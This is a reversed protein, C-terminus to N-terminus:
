KKCKFSALLPNYKEINETNHAIALTILYAKNDCIEATQLYKLKPTKQDYRAEFITLKSINWSEFTFDSNAIESFDYFDNWLNLIASTLYDSASIDLNLNESLIILNNYFGSKDTKSTVAFEVEWNNPKPLSNEPNELIQWNEPTKISFNEGSEYIKLWNNTSTTKTTEWKSDSCSFLFLALILFAIKKM